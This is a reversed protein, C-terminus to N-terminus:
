KVICDYYAVLKDEVADEDHLFALALDTYYDVNNVGYKKAVKGYDSYIMNLAVYFEVPDCTINKEKLVQSTQEFTWHGGVTKDSNHMSKVWEEATVKDLVVGVEGYGREMNGPSGAAANRPSYDGRGYSGYDSRDDFGIKNMGYTDVPRGEYGDSYSNRTMRDDTPMYAINRPAYRGNDYRERGRSETYRDEPMMDDQMMRYRRYNSM